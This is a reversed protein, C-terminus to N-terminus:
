SGRPRNVFLFLFVRRPFLVPLDRLQGPAISSYYCGFSVDGGHRCATVSLQMEGATM